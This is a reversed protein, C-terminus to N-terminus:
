QLAEDERETSCAVIGYADAFAEAEEALTDGRENAEDARVQDGRRVAREVVTMEDLAADVSDLWHDVGPEDREPPELGRLDRLSARQVEVVRDIADAVATADTPSPPRVQAVRANSKECIRNARAVFERKSLADGGGGRCGLLTAVALVVPATRTLVRRAHM